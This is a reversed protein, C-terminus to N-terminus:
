VGLPPEHHSSTAHRAATLRRGLKTSLYIAHSAGFFGLLEPPADPLRGLSKQSLALQIYAIASLATAALMQLREPTVQYPQDQGLL